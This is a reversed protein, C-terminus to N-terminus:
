LRRVSREITKFAPDSVQVETEEDLTSIVNLYAKGSTNEIITDGLYIGHAIKIKPIYGVKLEPNEIRVYFSTESRPPVVITEASSFPINNGSVILNRQAYNIKSLTQKFFDDGLIGSQSLSLSPNSERDLWKRRVYKELGRINNGLL